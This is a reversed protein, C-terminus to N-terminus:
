IDDNIDDMSATVISYAMDYADQLHIRPNDQRLSRVTDFLEDRKGIKHASYIIDEIASM